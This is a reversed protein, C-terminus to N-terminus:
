QRKTLTKAFSRWPHLEYHGGDWADSTTVDDDMNWDIGCRLPIKMKLALGKGKGTKPDYRGIVDYLARFAKRDNWDYPAPFLDCAVAPEYNHASQGFHAKSNGKAFAREQADRGRIADLIRFDIVKIAEVLIRQMDPHLAALAAKSQAGFSPM